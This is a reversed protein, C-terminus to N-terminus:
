ECLVPEPLWAGTLVDCAGGEDIAFSECAPLEAERRLPRTGAQEKLLSFPSPSIPCERTERKAKVPISEHLASDIGTETLEHGIPPVTAAIRTAALIQVAGGKVLVEKEKELKYLQIGLVQVLVDDQGVPLACAFGIPGPTKRGLLLLESCAIHRTHTRNAFNVVAGGAVIRFHTAEKPFAKKKYATFSPIEVQMVGAVADLNHEFSFPLATVLALNKNFNFGTMISIAGGAACRSGLDRQTDQCAVAYLLGNMHGNLTTCRVGDLARGLAQRLLTADEIAQKFERANCRTRAFREHTLVQERTPGTKKGVIKGEPTNRFTLHDITGRITLISEYKAM